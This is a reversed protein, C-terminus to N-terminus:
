TRSIYDLYLENGMDDMQEFFDVSLQRNTETINPIYDDLVNWDVPAFRHEWYTPFQSWLNQEAMNDWVRWGITPVTNYYVAFKLGEITRMSGTIVETDNLDTMALFKLHSNANIGVEEMRGPIISAYRVNPYLSAKMITGCDSIGTVNVSLNKFDDTSSLELMRSFHAIKLAIQPRDGGRQLKNIFDVFNLCEEDTMRTSPFQVYVLGDSQGLEELLDLLENTRAVFKDVTNCNVKNMANPNTTIGFTFNDAHNGLVDWTKRIYDTDATDFFFDIM